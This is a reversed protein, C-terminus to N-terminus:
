AEPDGPGISGGPGIPGVSGGPIQNRRGLLVFLAVATALGLLMAIKSFPEPNLFAVVCLGVVTGVV